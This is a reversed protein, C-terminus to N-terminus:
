NLFRDIESVLFMINFPKPIFKDAGVKKVREKIDQDTISSIIIIPIRRYHDHFKLLRSIELGNMSPMIIDLVLIHPPADQVKRYLKLGDSFFSVEYNEKKKLVASILKVLTPQDEGIYIKKKSM